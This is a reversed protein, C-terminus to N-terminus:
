KPIEAPITLEKNQLTKDYAYVSYTADGEGSNILFTYGDVSITESPGCSVLAGICSLLLVVSLLYSIHKM